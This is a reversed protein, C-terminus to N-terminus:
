NHGWAVKVLDGRHSILKAQLIGGTLWVVTDFARQHTKQDSEASPRAAVRPM